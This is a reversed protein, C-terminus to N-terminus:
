IRNKFIMNKSYLLKKRKGINKVVIHLIDMWSESQFNM